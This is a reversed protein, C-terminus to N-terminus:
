WQWKWEVFIFGVLIDCQIGFMEKEDELEVYDFGFFYLLGYVILFLLEEFISYGVGEVQVIVVQLCLVIDGLLGVLMVDDESGFCLEDMLFSFVDILGFEDMWQLYLQEMVVEDVFLIVFEVDVYVYLFDFEFVVFCLFVSEDIFIGSENNIEISVVLWVM